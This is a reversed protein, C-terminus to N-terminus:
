GGTGFLLGLRKKLEDRVSRFAELRGPGAPAAAPDPLGWHLRLAGGLWVPCVEEACLTIVAEVTPGGVEDVGKSRQGSGDLGVEALVELAEPRVASPESGASSIVVGPPALARGLAEALQSRASNAVCMFLVHQPALAGLLAAELQWRQPTGPLTREGVRVAPAPEGAEPRRETLQAGPALRSAVERTLLLM